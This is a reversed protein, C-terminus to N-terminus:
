NWKVEIILDHKDRTIQTIKANQCSTMLDRKICIEKRLQLARSDNEKKSLYELQSPINAQWKRYMQPILLNLENVMVAFDRKETQSSTVGRLVSRWVMHSTDKFAMNHPNPKPKFAECFPVQGNTRFEQMLAYMFGTTAVKIYQMKQEQQQQRKNKEETYVYWIIFAIAFGVIIGHLM